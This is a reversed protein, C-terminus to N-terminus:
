QFLSFDFTLLYFYHLITSHQILTQPPTKAVSQHIYPQQNSTNSHLNSNKCIFVLHVTELQQNKIKSKQNKVKFKKISDELLWYSIM